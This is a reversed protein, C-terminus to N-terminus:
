RKENEVIKPSKIFLGKEDRYRHLKAELNENVKTLMKAKFELTKIESNVKIIMKDRISIQEELKEIISKSEKALSKEIIVFCVILLIVSLVYIATM